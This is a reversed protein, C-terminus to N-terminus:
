RYSRVHHAAVEIWLSRAAKECTFRWEHEILSMAHAARKASLPGGCSFHLLHMKAYKGGAEPQGFRKVFHKMDKDVAILAADNLMAM